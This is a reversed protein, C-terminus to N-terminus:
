NLAFVEKYTLRLSHFLKVVERCHKGKTTIEISLRKRPHTEAYIRCIEISRRSMLVCEYLSLHELQPFVELFEILFEDKVIIGELSLVKLGKLQLISRFNMEVYGLTKTDEGNVETTVPFLLYLEELGPCQSGITDLLTPSPPDSFRISLSTLNKASELFLKFHEESSRQMEDELKNSEQNKAEDLEIVEAKSELSTETGSSVEILSVFDDIQADFDDNAHVLDLHVHTLGTFSCLGTIDRLDLPLSIKKLFPLSASILKITASHMPLYITSLHLEELKRSKILELVAMLDEEIFWTISLVRLKEAYQGLQEIVSSSCNELYVNELSTCTERFITVIDEELQKLYFLEISIIRPKQVSKVYSLLHHLSYHDVIFKTINPCNQALLSGFNENLLQGFDRLSLVELSPGCHSCNKFVLDAHEDDPRKKLIFSNDLEFVHSRYKRITFAFAIEKVSIGSPEDLLDFDRNEDTFIEEWQFSQIPKKLVDHCKKKFESLSSFSDVYVLGLEELLARNSIFEPVELASKNYVTEHTYSDTENEVKSGVFKRRTYKRKIRKIARPKWDDVSDTSEISIRQSRKRKGTDEFEFRQPKTIRRRPKAESVIITADTDVTCSNNEVGDTITDGSIEDDENIVTDEDSEKSVSIIQKVVIVREKNSVSLQYEGENTPISVDEKNQNDDFSSVLNRLENLVSNIAETETETKEYATLRKELRELSGQVDSVKEELCQISKNLSKVKPHDDHRNKSELAKLEQKYKRHDEESPLSEQISTFLRQILNFRQENADMEERNAEAVGPLHTEKVKKTKM